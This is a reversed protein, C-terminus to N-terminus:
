DKASRAGSKVMKHEREYEEKDFVEYFYNLDKFTSKSISEIRAILGLAVRQLREKNKSISSSENVIATHELRMESIRVILEEVKTVDSQSFGIRAKRREEISKELESREAELRLIDSLMSLRTREREQYKERLEEYRGLLTELMKVKNGIEQNQANIVYNRYSIALAGVAAITTLPGTFFDFSSVWVRIDSSFGGTGFKGLFFGVLSAAVLAFAAVAGSVM